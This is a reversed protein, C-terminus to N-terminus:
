APHYKFMFECTEQEIWKEIQDMIRASALTLDVNADTLSFYIQPCGWKAYELYITNNRETLIIHPHRDFQFILHSDMSPHRWKRLTFTADYHYVMYFVLDKLTM